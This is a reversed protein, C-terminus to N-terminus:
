KKRRIIRKIFPTHLFHYRKKTLISDFKVQNIVCGLIPKGSRELQSVVEALDKKKTKGYRLVLVIGDCVSAIKAADITKGASPTDILIYDYAQTLESLLFALDTMRVTSMNPLLFLGDVDTDWVIDTCSCVKQLYDQMTKKQNTSDYMEWGARAADIVLVTYGEETLTHALQLTITTKGDGDHCSTIAISKKESATCNDRITIDRVTFLLNGAITRIMEQAAPETLIYQRIPIMPM